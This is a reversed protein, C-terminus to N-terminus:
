SKVNPYALARTLDAPTNVNEFVRPDELELLRPGIAGVDVRLPRDAGLAPALLPAAAPLYLALLPQIVGGCTPVVAPAGDADAAAILRVVEPTVFPMDAACVLVARGSAVGLAHLIGALPHRPRAPETWVAVDGVEAPLETHAKAVIAVEALAARLAALPYGILPRGRLEVCAKAGGLRRGQGGALVVGIPAAASYM